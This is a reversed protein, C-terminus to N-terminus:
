KVLKSYYPFNNQTTEHYNQADVAMIEALYNVVQKNTPSRDPFIEKLPSNETFYAKNIVTRLNRELCIMSIGLRRSAASYLKLMTTFSRCRNSCSCFVLERLTSYGKLNPKFKLRALEEVIKNTLRVGDYNEISFEIVKEIFQLREEISQYLNEPKVVQLKKVKPFMEKLYDPNESVIVASYFISPSEELAQRLLFSDCSSDIIVINPLVEYYREFFSLVSHTYTLSINKDDCICKTKFLIESDVSTLLLCNNM